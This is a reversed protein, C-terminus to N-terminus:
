SESDSSEIGKDKTKGEGEMNNESECNKDM